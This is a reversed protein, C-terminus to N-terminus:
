NPIKCINIKKCIELAFPDYSVNSRDFSNPNPHMRDLISKCREVEKSKTEHRPRNENFRVLLRRQSLFDMLDNIGADEGLENNIFSCIAAELLDILTIFGEDFSLNIDKNFQSNIKEGLIDIVKKFTTLDGNLIQNFLEKEKIFLCIFFSFCNIDIKFEESMRHGSGIIKEFINTFLEIERLTLKFMKCSAYYPKIIKNKTDKLLENVVFKQGGNEALITKEILSDIFRQAEKYPDPLDIEQKFFKRYYGGFDLDKGYLCQVTTEIQNRNVAFLFVVNEIDFFHKMDELFSVAYDPRTRDM